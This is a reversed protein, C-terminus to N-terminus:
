GSIEREWLIDAVRAIGTTLHRRYSSFPVDLLEAAKEQTPAPEVYTHHLARHLKALRPTSDLSGIAERLLAELVAARESKAASMGAREFVMRSRLLPSGRLAEPSALDRLADHVARDFEPRSLVVVTERPAAATPATGGVERDALLSLWAMPPLARWDRGFVGYTRGDTSFEAEAIRPTEAYAFVPTWFDAGFCPLFTYALGPTTLYHRIVSVFILSQVPSVNQYDDRSMWFRFYTGCEGPRLPVRDQLYQWAAAVAPDRERDEASTNELGVMQLYGTVGGEGRFVLAGAPQRAMWHRAIAASAAGEHLSVIAAVAEVDPERLAEPPLAAAETWEFFPRVVPNDRHLFIYDHVVRQQEAGSTQQLRQMYYARARGHLEAYRDPNRWRLDAALIERALDHPFIGGPGTEVFSLGRLWDFAATDGLMAQLLAENTVRVMACADLAERHVTGSVDQLFRELLTRVVDPAAEPAFPVGPRQAEADAVLALALPHGHTFSLIAESPSVGRRQLYERSEDETFNRLSLPRLLTAWAPDSRWPPTPPRLSALVTLTSAPLGPLFVERLWVDLALLAECTDVLLVQVSSRAHLAALPDGEVGLGAGLGALFGEPSPDLNRADLLVCPVGLTDCQYQLEGLLTTKGVGGPGFVHLALFPLEAATIADRFLRVEQVRGVFAQHRAQALRSALPPAPPRDTARRRPQTTM